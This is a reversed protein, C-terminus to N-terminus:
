VYLCVRERCSARGIQEGAESATTTFLNTFMDVAIFSGNYLSIIVIQFAGYFMFPLMFLAMKGINQRLTLIILYLSFPLTISIIKTTISYPETFLLIINPLMLITIFFILSFIYSKYLTWVNKFSNAIWGM